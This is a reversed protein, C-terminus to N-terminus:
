VVDSGREGVTAGRREEEDNSSGYDLFGFDDGSEASGSRPIGGVKGGTGTGGGTGDTTETTQRDYESKAASAESLLLEEDMHGVSTYQAMSDSRGFALIPMRSRSVERGVNASFRTGTTTNGLPTSALANTRMVANTTAPTTPTNITNKDTKKMPTRLFKSKPLDASATRGRNGATTTSATNTATALDGASNSHHYQTGTSSSRNRGSWCM